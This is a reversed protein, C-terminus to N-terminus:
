ILFIATLVTIIIAVLWVLLGTFMGTEPGLKWIALPHSAYWSVSTIDRSLITDLLDIVIALVTWGSIIYAIVKLISYFTEM